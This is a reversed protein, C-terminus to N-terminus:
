TCAVYFHFCVVKTRTTIRKYSSDCYLREDQYPYSAMWEDYEISLRMLDSDKNSNM